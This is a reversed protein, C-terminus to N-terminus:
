ECDDQDNAQSAAQRSDALLSRWWGRCFLGHLNYDASAVGCGVAVIKEPSDFRGSIGVAVLVGTMICISKGM